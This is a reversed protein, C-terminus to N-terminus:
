ARARTVIGTVDEICRAACLEEVPLTTGFTEELALLMRIVGADTWGAIQAPGEAPDPLATLKFVRMVVTAVSRGINRLADNGRARAPVGSFIAGNPIVGAVTSGSIIRAGDGIRTGRLVTVRTGLTVNRGIEIPAAGGPAHKDGVSHFDNDLILCFPGIRTGDGIRIARRASIAAGYAIVVHNGVTLSADRMVVLHSRVPYSSLRCDEGIHIVGDNEVHPRGDSGLHFGARLGGLFGRFGRFGGDEAGAGANSM